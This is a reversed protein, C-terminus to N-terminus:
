AIVHYGMIGILSAVSIVLGIMFSNYSINLRSFKKDAVCGMKYIHAIMNHYIREHDGLMDWMATDFEESSLKSFQEFILMDAKGSEFDELSQPRKDVDPRASLVAFVIAVTCTMLLLAVPILLLRDASLFYAGSLLLMSVLLGNLSIMINAKTAALSIMDLQARYSSRFMSEIGRSSGIKGLREVAAESKALKAKKLEIDLQDKLHKIKTNKADMQEVNWTNSSQLAKLTRAKKAAKGM